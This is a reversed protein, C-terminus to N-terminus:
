VENGTYKEHAGSSPMRCVRVNVQKDDRQMMSITEAKQTNMIRVINRWDHHIGHNKLRHRITNVVAHFFRDFQGGNAPPNQGSWKFM